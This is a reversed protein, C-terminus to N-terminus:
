QYGHDQTIDMAITKRRARKRGFRSDLIASRDFFPGKVALKRFAHDFHPLVNERRDM